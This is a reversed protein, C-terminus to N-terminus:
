READALDAGAARGVSRRGDMVRYFPDFLHPISQSPIGPGRDCVAVALAGSIRRVELLIETDPPAYKTANEILNYIVQGIEVPDIWVPPLDKPM